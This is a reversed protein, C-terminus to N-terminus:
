DFLIEDVTVFEYGEKLLQDVVMLAAQVTSEYEDHMLIIDNEGAKALISRAICGANSSCWDLPDVTWLVPFMNLETEFTKDWAGYPPRVYETEKGTIDYIVQNTRILEEKFTDRNSPRLQVHSYTHNGILHGEEDMREILEPYNEAQEGTVFFTAKVKRELLGDLLQKLYDIVLQEMKKVSIAVSTKHYGKAYKWCQFYPCAGSGTYSLTAGCISCKILGSLWHKCTSANRHKAPRRRADM